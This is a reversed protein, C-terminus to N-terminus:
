NFCVILLTHTCTHSGALVLVDDIIFLQRGALPSTRSITTRRDRPQKPLSGRSLNLSVEFVTPESGPFEDFERTDLQQKNAHM